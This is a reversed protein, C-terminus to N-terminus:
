SAPAQYAWALPNPSIAAADSGLAPRYFEFDNLDRYAPFRATKLQYPTSRV